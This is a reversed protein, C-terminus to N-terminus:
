HLPSGPRSEVAPSARGEPWAICLTRPRGATEVRGGTTRSLIRLPGFARVRACLGRGAPLTGPLRPRLPRPVDPLEVGLPIVRRPSVPVGSSSASAVRFSAPRPTVMATARGMPRLSRPTPGRCASARPATPWAMIDRRRMPGLSRSEEAFTRAGVGARAGLRGLCEPVGRFDSSAHAHEEMALRSEVTGIRGGPPRSGFKREITRCFKALGTGDVFRRASLVRRGARGWAQEHMRGLGVDGDGGAWSRFVSGRPPIRLEPLRLHPVPRRGAPRRMRGSRATSLMSYPQPVYTGTSFYTTGPAVYSSYGSGYYTTGRGLGYGYGYPQGVYVGSGHLPQRHLRLIPCGRGLCARSHTRRGDGHWLHSEHHEGSTGPHLGLSGRRDVEGIDGRTAYIMFAPITGFAM